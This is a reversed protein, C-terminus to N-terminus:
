LPLCYEMEDLVKLTINSLAKTFRKILSRHSHSLSHEKSPLLHWARLLSVQFPYQNCLSSSYAFMHTDTLYTFNIPPGETFTLDTLRRGTRIGWLRVYGEKTGSMLWYKHLSLASIAFKPDEKLPELTNILEGTKYDWITVQGIRNGILASQNEIKLCTIPALHSDSHAIVHLCHGQYNWAKVVHLCTTIIHEHTASLHSIAGEEHAQYEREALGTHVNWLILLGTNYGAILYSNQLQFCHVKLTTKTLEWKLDILPGTLNFVSITSQNSQNLHSVAVIQDNADFHPEWETLEQGDGNTQQPNLQLLDHPENAHFSPLINFLRSWKPERRTLDWVELAIRNALNQYGHILLSNQILKICFSYRSPTLNLQIRKKRSYIGLLSNHTQKITTKNDVSFYTIGTTHQLDSQKNFFADERLHSIYFQKWSCRIVQKISNENPWKREYLKEWLYNQEAIQKFAKCVCSINRLSNSNLHSFISSIMEWPLPAFASNELSLLPNALYGNGDSPLLANM